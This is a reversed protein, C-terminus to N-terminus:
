EEGTVYTKGAPLPLTKHLLFDKVSVIGRRTKFFTTGNCRDEVLWITGRVTASGQNGETKFNGHGSGWLKGSNKAGGRAAISSAFARGKGGKGGKPKAKCVNSDILELVVLGSGEKQKVKFIGGFFEATQETGDPGISTLKVRGATADIVAGVPIEKLEELPVYKKTGPLKILVKGEEPKVVVKEGNSPTPGPPPSPTSNSSSSTQKPEEHKPEPEPEPEPEPPVYRFCESFESTAGTGSGTATATIYDQGSPPAAGITVKYPVAGEGAEIETSGLYTQGEGGEGCSESAFFDLSVEEGGEEETTVEGALTMADESAQFAEGITPPPPLPEDSTFVIGGESNEFISNARIKVESEVSEVEVGAGENHAIVNGNIVAGTSDAEIIGAGVPEKVQEQEEGCDDCGDGGAAGGNPLAGGTADVGIRNGAIQTDAGYDAVGFEENGSILNGALADCGAGIENEASAGEGGSTEVGRWNPSPTTGDPEIGIYSGCLQAGKASDLWVGYEFGGIALGDILTGGGGGSVVLGEDREAESGELESGDLFVVPTGAYGPATTGDIEVPETIEPLSEAEVKITGAVKFEIVDAQGTDNRDAAEIADRLTCDEEISLCAADNTDGDSTTAVILTEGNQGVPSQAAAAFSPVLLLSLM